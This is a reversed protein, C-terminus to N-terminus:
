VEEKKQLSIEAYDMINNLNKILSEREDEPVQSLLENNWDVLMKEIIPLINEAKQTPYVCTKRRDLPDPKRLIYEEKELYGLQRTVNSKNVFILKALSEQTIGPNKCINIIYTHHIGNLGYEKLQAARHLGSLRAIRNIYRTMFAM